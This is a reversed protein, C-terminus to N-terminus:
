LATTSFKQWSRVLSALIFAGLIIWAHLGCGKIIVLTIVIVTLAISGFTPFFRSTTWGTQLGISYCAFATLIVVSSIDFIMGEYVPIPPAYIRYLIMTALILPLFFTVMALIGTMIKATFILGRTTPLTLLFASIKRNKDIYMQTVGMAPFGIFMLVALPIVIVVIWEGGNSNGAGKSSTFATVFILILIVAFILGGIFYMINDYVDRKILALLTKM